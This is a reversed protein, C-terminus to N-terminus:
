KFDIVYILSEGGKRHYMDYEFYTQTAEIDMLNLEHTEGISLIVPFKDPTGHGKRKNMDNATQNIISTLQQHSDIEICTYKFKDNSDIFRKFLWM